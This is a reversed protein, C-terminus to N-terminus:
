GYDYVAKATPAQRNTSSGNITTSISNFYKSTDTGIRLQQKAVQIDKVDSTIQASSVTIAAIVAIVTIVTKRADM